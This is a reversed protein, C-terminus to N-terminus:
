DAIEYEGGQQQPEETASGGNSFSLLRDGVNLDLKLGCGALNDVRMECLAGSIQFLIGRNNLFESLPAELSTTM